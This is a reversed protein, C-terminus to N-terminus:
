RPWLGLTTFSAQIVWESLARFGAIGLKLKFGMSKADHVQLACVEDRTERITRQFATKIYADCPQSCHSTNAPNQVVEINKAVCLDLWDYWNHSSHGDLLIVFIKEPGIIKRVHLDVHGVLLPLLNQAYLRKRFPVNCYRPSVM